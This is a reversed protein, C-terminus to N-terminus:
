IFKNKIREKKCDKKLIINEIKGATTLILDINIENLLKENNHLYTFLYNDSNVNLGLRNCILWSVSEAEIEKVGTSLNKRDECQCNSFKGLHGLMLHALEHCLTAFQNEKSYNKNIVITKNNNLENHSAWGAEKKFLDDRYLVLINKKLCCDELNKIFTDKIYGKTSFLHEIDNPLDDGYTDMVDYVFEVPSFAKMIVYARADRKINRNFKSKWHHSTAIYTIDPNQEMLLWANFPAVYKLKSIFNLAEKYNNSEKYSISKKFLNDLLSFNDNYSYDKDDFKPYNEKEIKNKINLTYKNHLLPNVWEEIEQKIKELINNKLLNRKDLNNEHYIEKLFSFELRSNSFWSFDDENYKENNTTLFRIMRLSTEYSFGRHPSKLIPSNHYYSTEIKNIFYDCNKSVEDYFNEFLRSLIYMYKSQMELEINKSYIAKIYCDNFYGTSTHYDKLEFYICALYFKHKSSDLNFFDKISTLSHLYKLSYIVDNNDIGYHYHYMHNKELDSIRKIHKYRVFIYTCSIILFTYLIVYFFNITM